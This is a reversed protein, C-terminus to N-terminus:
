QESVGSLRNRKHTSGDLINEGWTSRNRVYADHAINREKAYAVRKKAEALTLYGGLTVAYVTKGKDDIGQYLEVPHVIPSENLQDAKKIADDLDYISAVVPFWGGIVVKEAAALVNTDTESELLNKKLQIALEPDMISLIKVGKERIRPDSDTIYKINLELIKLRDQNKGSQAAVEINNSSIKETSKIQTYTVCVTGLLGTLAIALPIAVIELWKKTQLGEITKEVTKLRNLIDVDGNM